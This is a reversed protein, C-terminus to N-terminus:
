IFCSFGEPSPQLTSGISVVADEDADEDVVASSSLFGSTFFSGLSSSSPDAPELPEGAAACLLFFLSNEKSLLENKTFRYHKDQTTALNQAMLWNLVAKQTAINEFQGM